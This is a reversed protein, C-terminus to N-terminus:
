FALGRVVEESGIEGNWHALLVTKNRVIFNKLYDFDQASLEAGTLGITEPSDSITMWFADEVQPTESKNRQIRMRPGRPRDEDKALIWINSPLEPHNRKFFSSLLWGKEGKSAFLKRDNRAIVEDAKRKLETIAEESAPAGGLILQSAIQDESYLDNEAIRELVYRNNRVFNRLQALDGEQLEGIGPNCLTGDLGMANWNDKNLNDDTDMQFAVQKFPLQQFDYAYGDDIAVNMPLGTYEKWMMRTEFAPHMKKVGEAGTLGAGRM